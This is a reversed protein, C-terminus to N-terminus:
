VRAKMKQMAVETNEYEDLIRFIGSMQFIKRVTPKLKVVGVLGGKKSIAKYRGM